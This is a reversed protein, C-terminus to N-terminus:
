PTQFRIWRAPNVAKGKKRVEFYLYPGKLSGSEGLTGLPNGQQVTAGQSVLFRDLHAYLTYYSDGHDLIVLRGYGQFIEAFVVKGGYVAFVESGKPAHIDVGLHKTVTDFRQDVQRGFGVVVRGVVPAPLRGRQAAFGKTKPRSRISRVLGQLKGRARKLEGMVKNRLGLKKELMGLAFQKQNRNTLLERRKKRVSEQATTLQRKQREIQVIVAGLEDQSERIQQVLRRDSLAMQELLEHRELGQAISGAEFILSLWGIEGLMYLSRLRVVLRNRLVGLRKSLQDYRKKNQQQQNELVALQQTANALTNEALEIQRDIKDLTELLSISKNELLSSLEQQSPELALRIGAPCILSPGTDNTIMRDPESNSIRPKDEVRLFRIAKSQPAGVLFVMSVFLFKLDALAEM